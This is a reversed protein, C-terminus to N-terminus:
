SCEPMAQLGHIHHRCLSAPRGQQTLYCRNNDSRKSNCQYRSIDQNALLWLGCMLAIKFLKYRVTFIIHTPLIHKLSHTAVKGSKGTLQVMEM